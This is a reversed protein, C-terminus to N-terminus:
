RAVVVRGTRVASGTVVRILYVGNRVAADGSSADWWCEAIGQATDQMPLADVMRGVTDFICVLAPQGDAPFRITCGSGTPNPCATVGYDSPVPAASWDGVGVPMSWRYAAAGETGAFLFNGPNTALRTVVPYGLGDNMATFTLGGDTSQYVGQGSTAVWLRGADLPDFLVERSSGVSPAVRTFTACSNASRFIGTTTVAIVLNPDSQCVALGYVTGLLGSSATKSWATGGDLTRYIAPQSSESGAAYVTDPHSPDLAICYLMGGAGGIQTHSWTSGGNVSRGVSM